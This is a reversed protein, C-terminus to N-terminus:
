VSLESPRPDDLVTEAAILTEFVVPEPKPSSVFVDPISEERSDVFKDPIDLVRFLLREFQELFQERTRWGPQPANWLMIGAGVLGGLVLGKRFARSKRTM